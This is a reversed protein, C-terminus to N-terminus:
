IEESSVVPNLENDLTVHYATEEGRFTTIFPRVMGTPEVLILNAPAKPVPKGDAEDENENSAEAETDEEDSQKKRQLSNFVLSIEEPVIRERLVELKEVARWQGDLEWFRYRNDQERVEIGMPLGTFTSEDQLHSVLKAFRRAELSAIDDVDQGVNLAVLTAALGILFVTLM